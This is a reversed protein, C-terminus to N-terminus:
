IIREFLFLFLLTAAFFVLLLWSVKDIKGPVVYWGDEKEPLGEDAFKSQQGKISYESWETQRGDILRSAVLAVAINAAGGILCYWPWAIDTKTAVFWIILFGAAVGVLLGKETTQKSFFGLGYMSLKAGVFYSGIKSLTQLISGESQSYIIAPLIIIIAWAVTFGRSVKLYHEPTAGPRYYKEYYDVTSITALSNFSSDLSSMSAAVIAAAIIGMLGPMGYDAAFTLIITNGNDFEAGGYYGYFLIGLFFFLFYIFFAAFGMLLFSKKADGINKAALTRQVMMQNAGYVTVHFITMAIIGSWITAEVELDFSFDLANTKGQAKLDALVEGIPAPMQDLLAFFIIFAGVFLVGAQIVDTWIVATIGGMMTYVLAIVTVIVIATKVDIGTIFQIVLSTAYLIAASTLAQSVLFVSSIVIRSTPGFRREMYDYISAVGSNFFFPLFLTVVLFVVIPYNLHIAIVALSNTYSWAPGGLFSLASVYTAVVSIGIAWWPTTRRGLYFDEATSVRKSLVFGLLLNLLVYAILISWNLTGFEAM